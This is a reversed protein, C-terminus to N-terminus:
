GSAKLTTATDPRRDILRILTPHTERRRHETLIRRGENGGELALASIADFRLLQAKERLMARLVVFSQQKWLHVAIYAALGRKRLDSDQLLARLSDDFSRDVNKKLAETALWRVSEDDHELCDLMPKLYAPRWQESLQELALVVVTPNADNLIEEVKAESRALQRYRISAAEYNIKRIRSEVFETEYAHPSLFYANLYYHLARKDDGRAKHFFRGVWSQIHVSLPALEAAKVFDEEAEKLKGANQLEAAKIFLIEGQKPHTRPNSFTKYFARDFQTEPFRARRANELLYFAQLRDGKDWFYKALEMHPAPELYNLALQQRLKILEPNETELASASVFCVIIVLVGPGLYKLNLM